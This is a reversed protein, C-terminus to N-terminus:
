YLSSHVQQVAATYYRRQEHRQKVRAPASHAAAGLLARTVEVSVVRQKPHVHLVGHAGRRTAEFEVRPNEACAHQVPSSILAAVSITCQGPCSLGIHSLCASCAYRMARAIPNVSLEVSRKSSAVGQIFQSFSALVFYLKTKPSRIRLSKRFGSSSLRHFGDAQDGSFIRFYM